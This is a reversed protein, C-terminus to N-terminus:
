DEKIEFIIVKFNLSGKRKMKKLLSPSLGLWAFVAYQHKCWRIIKFKYRTYTCYLIKTYYELWHLFIVAVAEIYSLVYIIIWPKMSNMFQVVFHAGAVQFCCRPGTFIDEFFVATDSLIIWYGIKKNSYKQEFCTSVKYLKEKTRQRSILNGSIETVSTSKSRNEIIKILLGFRTVGIKRVFEM